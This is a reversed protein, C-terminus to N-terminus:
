HCPFAFAHRADHAADHLAASQAFGAGYLLFLGAMLALAVPAIVSM